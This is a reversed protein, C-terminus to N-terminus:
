KALEAFAAAFRPHMWHRAEAIALDIDGTTCEVEDSYDRFFEALEYLEWQPQKNPDNEVGELTLARSTGLTRYVAETLEDVTATVRTGNIYLFVIAAELGIRKNGNVFPHHVALDRLYAAASYFKDEYGYVTQANNVAAELSGKERVGPEGGGYLRLQMVQGAEVQDTTLFRIEDSEALQQTLSPEEEEDAGPDPLVVLEGPPPEPVNNWAPCDSRFPCQHCLENPTAPFDNEEFAGEIKRTAAVAQNEFNEELREVHDLEPPQNADVLVGAANRVLGMWRVAMKLPVGLAPSTNKPQRRLWPHRNRRPGSRSAGTGEQEKRKRELELMEAKMAKAVAWGFWLMNEKTKETLRGGIKEDIVRVMMLVDNIDYVFQVEDPKAAFKWGRRLPIYYQPALLLKRIENPDEFMADVQEARTLLRALREKTFAQEDETLPALGKAVAEEAKEETASARVTEFIKGLRRAMRQEWSVDGQSHQYEMLFLRMCYKVNYIMPFTLVTDRLIPANNNMINEL